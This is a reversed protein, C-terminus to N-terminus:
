SDAGQEEIERIKRLRTDSGLDRHLLIVRYGLKRLFDALRESVMVSRHRGGTCGVGINLRQKGERVYLPVSFRLLEEQLEMFRHVESFQELYEIVPQDLGSLLKLEAIYFPNPMFRLDLLM